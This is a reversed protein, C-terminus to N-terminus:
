VVGPFPTNNTLHADYKQMGHRVGGDFIHGVMTHFQRVLFNNQSAGDSSLSHVQSYMKVCGYTCVRYFRSRKHVYRALGVSSLHMFM